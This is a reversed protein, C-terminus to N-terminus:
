VRDLETPITGLTLVTPNSTVVDAQCGTIMVVWSKSANSGIRDYTDKM